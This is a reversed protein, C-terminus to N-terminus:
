LTEPVVESLNENMQLDIRQKYRFENRVMGVMRDLDRFFRPRLSSYVHLVHYGQTWDGLLYLLYLPEASGAPPLSEIVVACLRGGSTVHEIVEAHTISQSNRPDFADLAPPADQFRGQFGVTARSKRQVHM